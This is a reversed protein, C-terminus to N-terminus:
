ASVSPKTARISFELPIPDGPLRWGDIPIPSMDAFRQWYTTPFEHLWDLTLGAEILSNVIESLPHIWQYTTPHRLRAARDLYDGGSADAVPEPSFYSHAPVLQPEDEKFVDAIPHFEVIHFRGGPVLFHAIIRAWESLDPLWRLVGGSTFVIDFQGDLHNLLDYVDSCVFSAPTALSRSLERAQDIAPESFDVGTVIAGLRAWSLSDLGYHCQLHLFRKGAVEGVEKSELESPGLAAFAQSGYTSRRHALHVALRDDWNARNAAARPDM